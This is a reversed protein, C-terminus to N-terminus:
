GAHSLWRALKARGGPRRLDLDRLDLAPPRAPLVAAGIEAAAAAVAPFAPCAPDLVVLRAGERLAALAHGPAEACDLAAAHPVGPAGEAARRVLALFWAAGLSGAAGPASLLLVGGPGALALAAAAQAADHVVVAPM